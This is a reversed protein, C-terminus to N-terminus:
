HAILEGGGLLARARESPLPRAILYGQVQECGLERLLRLQGQHEVGEAVTGLGLAGALGIVAEVLGPGRPDSRMSEIFRRDIKLVDVPLDALDALSSSGTGFDDVAVRVGIRRLRRLSDVVGGQDHGLVSETIEVTLASPDLGAAALSSRVDGVFGTDMLQTRSVNVAVGPADDPRARSWAAAETCALDLVLRGLEVILSSEEAIPIFVGPAVQGRGAMEWRALAEFSRIDGSRADVIPQFCVTLDRDAVATRLAHEIEVREVAAAHMRPEFLHHRRKGERKARYMALDANALLSGPTAGGGADTAIGVSGSVAFTRDGITMPRALADVIRRGLRGADLPHGLGTALVAFEDGGLRAITDVDPLAARLRDAVEVLMEDGAGHGLTDNVSKFGDLDMLAVALGPHRGHGRHGGGAAASSSRERLAREVDRSFRSRNALGTLADHFAQHTLEQQLLSPATVDRFSWVRGVIRGDIVQPLSEREFIRGDKFEIVDHSRADPTLALEVVKDLFADPDALQDLVSALGAAQDPRRLVEASLGWLECFRANFNTIRGDADAVLVGDSTSELTAALLSNARRIDEREVALREVALRLEANLELMEQSSTDLSQELLYRDQELDALLASTLDLFREWQAPDPAGGGTLGARRLVRALRRRRGSPAPETTM